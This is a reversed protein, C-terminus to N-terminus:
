LISIKDLMLQAYTHFVLMLLINFSNLFNVFNNLLNFFSSMNNLYFNYFWSIGKYFSIFSYLNGIYKKDNFSNYSSYIYRFLLKHFSYIRSNMLLISYRTIKTNFFFLFPFYVLYHIYM